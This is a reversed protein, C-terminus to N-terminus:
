SQSIKLLFLFARSNWSQGFSTLNMLADPRLAPLCGLHRRVNSTTHSCGLSTFPPPAKATWPASGSVITGGLGLVRPGGRRPVQSLTLTSLSFLSWLFSVHNSIHLSLSLSLFLSLSLPKEKSVAKVCGLYWAPINEGARWERPFAAQPHTQRNYIYPVARLNRRFQNGPLPRPSSPPPLHQFPPPPGLLSRSHSTGTHAPAPSPCLALVLILMKILIVLAGFLRKEIPPHACRPEGRGGGGWSVM